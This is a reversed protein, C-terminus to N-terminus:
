NRPPAPLEFESPGRIRTTTTTHSWNESTVTAPSSVPVHLFWVRRGQAATSISGSTTRRDKTFTGSSLSEGGASTATSRGAPRGRNKRWGRRAGAEAGGAKGRSHVGREESNLQGRDRIAKRPCSPPFRRPDLTASQEDPREKSKKRARAGLATAKQGCIKQEWGGSLGARTGRPGRGCKKRREGM